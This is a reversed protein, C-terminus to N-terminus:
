EKDGDIRFKALSDLGASIRKEWLAQPAAAQGHSTEKDYQRQMDDSATRLHDFARRADATHHPCIDHGALLAQRLRRAFLESIDFHAREHRLTAASATTSSPVDTRVWSETTSFTALVAFALREDRCQIMYGIGSATEAATSGGSHPRGRFEQWNVKHRASWPISHLTAAQRLLSDALDASSQAHGRAAM